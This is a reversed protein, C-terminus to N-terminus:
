KSKSREVERLSDFLKSVCRSYNKYDLEPITVSFNSSLDVLKAEAGMNGRIQTHGANYSYATGPAASLYDSAVGACVDRALYAYADSSRLQAGGAQYEQHAVRYAAAAEELRANQGQREGLMELASGLSAETDAWLIPAQDRPLGDLAARYAAVAEQLHPTSGRREGLLTLATGLGAQTSAWFIPAQLHPSQTLAARYAQIAEELRTTGGEQQGLTSLVNGLSNQTETWYLPALDPRNESLATRYAIVKNELGSNCKEENVSSNASSDNGFGVTGIALGGTTLLPGGSYGVSNCIAADVLFSNALARAEISAVETERRGAPGLTDAYITRARDLAANAASQDGIQTEVIGKSTLVEALILPDSESLERSVSEAKAILPLAEGFRGVSALAVAKNALGSAELQNLSDSGKSPALEALAADIDTLAKAPESKALYVSSRNILIQAERSSSDGYLSQAAALAQNLVNLAEDLRGAKRYAAGLNSLASITLPHGEGFRSELFSSAAQLATIGREFNGTSVYYVGVADMLRASQTDQIGSSLLLFDSDVNSAIDKQHGHRIAFNILDEEGARDLARTRSVLLVCAVLVAASATGMRASLLLALKPMQTPGLNM